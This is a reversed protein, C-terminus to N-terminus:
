CCHIVRPDLLFPNTSCSESGRPLNGPLVRRLEGFSKSLSEVELYKTGLSRVQKILSDPAQPVAALQAAAFFSYFRLARSALNLYPDASVVKDEPFTERANRTTTDRTSFFFIKPHM